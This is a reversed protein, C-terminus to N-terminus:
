QMGVVGIGANNIAVDIGGLMEIAQNVGTVVSNENTVDLEVILAGASKLEEAVKKNKTQANRMSAAVKHGEKLLTLTTLKGFGGSAGTILIRKSM